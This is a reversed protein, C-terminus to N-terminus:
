LDVASLQFRSDVGREVAKRAFCTPCLFPWEDSGDERRVVRNWLDNPAFWVPYDADCLMCLLERPERSVLALRRRLRNAEAEWSLPFSRLFDDWDSRKM